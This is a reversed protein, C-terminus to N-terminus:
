DKQEMPEKISFHPCFYPHHPAKEENHPDSPQQPPLPKDRVGPGSIPTPESPVRHEVPKPYTQGSHGVSEGPPCISQSERSGIRNARRKDKGQDDSTDQKIGEPSEFVSPPEQFSRAMNGIAQSLLLFLGLQGASSDGWCLAHQSSFDRHNRM